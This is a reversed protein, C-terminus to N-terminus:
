VALCDPAVLLSLPTDAGQPQPPEVDVMAFYRRVLPVLPTRSDRSGALIVSVDDRQPRPLSQAVAVMYYLADNPHRVTYSNCLHLRDGDHCVIDLREGRVHAWMHAKAEPVRVEYAHMMLPSLRHVFEPTVLARQLFSMMDCRPMWLLSVDGQVDAMIQREVDPREPYMETMADATAQEPSLMWRQEDVVCYVQHWGGRVILPHEYVTDELSKLQPGDEEATVPLRRHMVDGQGSAPLLAVDLSDRGVGLVLRWMAPDTVLDATLIDNDNEAM